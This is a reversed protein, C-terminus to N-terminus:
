AANVNEFIGASRLAEILSGLAARAEADITTGGSPIAPEAAAQWSGNYRLQIGATQDFITMGNTPSIFEWAEGIWIALKDDHSFWANGANGLIRYSAGDEPNEPPTDLSDVIVNQLLADVLSFAHNIFPEKQAQGAFLLPLSFRATASPFTIPNAM